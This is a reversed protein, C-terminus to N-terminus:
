EIINVQFSFNINEKETLQSIPIEVGDIWSLTSLSEQLGLLSERTPSYGGILVIKSGNDISITKLLIENPIVAALEPILHSIPEFEKQIKDISTLTTNIDRIQKNTGAHQGQLSNLTIDLENSFDELVLQGGLLVIGSVSIIILFFELINKIFQFNSLFSLRKMKEPSLLNLRSPIM